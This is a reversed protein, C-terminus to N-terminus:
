METRIPMGARLARTVPTRDAVQALQRREDDDLDGVLRIEREIEPANDPGRVARANVDVHALGMGHEEAFMRLTGSTCAVLGALVYTFPGPGAAGGGDAESADSLLGHRGASIHVLWHEDGAESTVEAVVDNTTLRRGEPPVWKPWALLNMSVMRIPPVRGDFWRNPGPSSGPQGAYAWFAGAADVWRRAAQAPREHQGSRQETLTPPSPRSRLM